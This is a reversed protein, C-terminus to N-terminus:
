RLTTLMHKLRDRIDPTGSTALFLFDRMIELATLQLDARM